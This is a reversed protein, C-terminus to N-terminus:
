ERLLRSYIDFARDGRGSQEVVTPLVGPAAQPAAVWPAANWPLPGRWTNSIPHPRM